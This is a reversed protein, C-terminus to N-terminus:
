NESPTAEGSSSSAAKATPTLRLRPKKEHLKRELMPRGMMPVLSPTYTGLTREPPTDKPNVIHLAYALSSPGSLFGLGEFFFGIGEFFCALTSGPRKSKDVPVFPPKDIVLGSRKSVRWKTLFGKEDVTM